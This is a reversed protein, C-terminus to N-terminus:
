FCSRYVKLTGDACASIRGFNARCSRCLGALRGQVSENKTQSPSEPVGCGSETEVGTKRLVLGPGISHQQLDGDRISSWGWLSACSDLDDFFGLRSEICADDALALALSERLRRARHLDRRLSSPFWTTSDVHLVSLLIISDSFWSVYAINEKPMAPNQRTTKELESFESLESEQFMHLCKWILHTCKCHAM